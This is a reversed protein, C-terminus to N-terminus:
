KSKELEKMMLYFQIQEYLMQMENMIIFDDDKGQAYTRGDHPSCYVDRQKVQLFLAWGNKRTIKEIKKGHDGFLIVMEVDVKSVRRLEKLAKELWYQQHKLTGSCITM